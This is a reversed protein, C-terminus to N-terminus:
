RLPGTTPRTCCCPARPGPRAFANSCGTRWGWHCPPAPTRRIRSRRRRASPASSRRDSLQALRGPRLRGHGVLAGLLAAGACDDAGVLERSGPTLQHARRETAQPVRPQPFREPDGTWSGNTGDPGTNAYWCNGTDGPFEDWWFDVGNPKITGGPARGMSNHHFRNDYSTSSANTPTCTESGPPCSLADPVALLMTGRRWNDYIHNDRVIDDNGGAILIGTGLPM